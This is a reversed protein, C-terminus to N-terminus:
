AQRAVQTEQWDKSVSRVVDVKSTEALPVREPVAIGLGAGTRLGGLDGM